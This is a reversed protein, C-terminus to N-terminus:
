EGDGSEIEIDGPEVILRRAAHEQRWGEEYAAELAQRLAEVHLSHQDAPGGRPELTEIGLRQKAIREAAARALNMGM